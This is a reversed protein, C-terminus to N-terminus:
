NHKPMKNIVLLCSTLEIFDKNSLALPNTRNLSKIIKDILEKNEMMQDKDSPLEFDLKIDEINVSELDLNEYLDEDEHMLLILITNDEVSYAYVDGTSVHKSIFDSKDIPTKFGQSILFEIFTITKKPDNSAKFKFPDPFLTTKM